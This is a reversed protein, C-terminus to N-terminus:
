SACRACLTSGDCASRVGCSTCNPVLRCGGPHGAGIFCQNGAGDRTSCRQWGGAAERRVASDVAAAAADKYSRIIM